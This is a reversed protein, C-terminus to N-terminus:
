YGERFFPFYSGGPHLHERKEEKRKMRGGDYREQLERERERLLKRDVRRGERKEERNKM